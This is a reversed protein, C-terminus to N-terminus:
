GSASIFMLQGYLTGSSGDGSSSALSIFPQATASTVSGVPATSLAPWCSAPKPWSLSSPLVADPQQIKAPLQVSCPLWIARRSLLSGYPMCWTCFQAQAQGALRRM